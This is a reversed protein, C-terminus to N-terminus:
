DSTWFCPHNLRVDPEPCLPERLREVDGLKLVEIRVDHGVRLKRGVRSTRAIEFSLVAQDNKKALKVVVEETEMEGTTNSSSSPSASKLVSLLASTPLSLTIMNAANSQIRYSTFISDVKIQRGGILTLILAPLTCARGSKSGARM